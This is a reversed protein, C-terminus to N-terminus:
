KFIEKWDQVGILDRYENLKRNTGLGYNVLNSRTAKGSLISHVRTKTNSRMKQEEENLEEKEASTGILAHESFTFALPETPAFFNWGRTWFRASLILDVEDDKMLQLYPDVPACPPFSTPKSTMLQLCLSPPIPFFAEAATFLFKTSLVGEMLYPTNTDENEELHDMKKKIDATQMKSFASRPNLYKSDQLCNNEKKVYNKDVNGARYKLYATSNVKELLGNLLEKLKRHRFQITCRELLTKNIMHKAENYWDKCDGSYLAADFSLTHKMESPESLVLSFFDHPTMSEEKLQLPTSVVEDKTDGVFLSHLVSLASGETLPATTVVREKVVAHLWSPFTLLSFILQDAHMADILSKRTLKKDRSADREKRPIVVEETVHWLIDFALSQAIAQPRTSLIATNPAATHIYQLRAKWDWSRVLMTDAHVTMVYSEGRYLTLLSYLVANTTVYPMKRKTRSEGDSSAVPLLLPKTRINDKFSFGFSEEDEVRQFGNPICSFLISSNYDFNEDDEQPVPKYLEVDLVGTFIGVPWRANRYIGEVTAACSNDSSRTSRNTWTHRETGSILNRMDPIVAVFISGDLGYGRRAIHSADWFHASHSTFKSYEENQSKEMLYNNRALEGKSSLQFHYSLIDEPTTVKEPNLFRVIYDEVNGDFESTERVPESQKHSINHVQAFSRVADLLLDINSIDITEEMVNVEKVTNLNSHSTFLSFTYLIAVMSLFAIGLVKRNLKRKRSYIM